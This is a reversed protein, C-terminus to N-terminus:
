RCSLIVILSLNPWKAGKEFRVTSNTAEKVRVSSYCTDIKQKLGPEQKENRLFFFQYETLTGPDTIVM